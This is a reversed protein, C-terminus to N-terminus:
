RQVVNSSIWGFGACWHALPKWRNDNGISDLDQGCLPNGTRDRERNSQCHSELRPDTYAATGALLAGSVVTVSSCLRPLGHGVLNACQVRNRRNAGTPSAYSPPCLLPLSITPLIGGGLAPAGRPPRFDGRGRGPILERRGVVCGWVQPTQLHRTVSAGLQLVEGTADTLSHTRGCHDTSHLQYGERLMQATPRLRGGKHLPQAGAVGGELVM